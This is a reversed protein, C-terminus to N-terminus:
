SRVAHSRKELSVVRNELEQVYCRQCNGFIIDSAWPVTALVTESDAHECRAEPNYTRFLTIGDIPTRARITDIVSRICDGCLWFEQSEPPREPRRCRSYRPRWRIGDAEKVYPIIKPFALCDELLDFMRWRTQESLLAIRERVDFQRCDLEAKISQVADIAEVVRQGDPLEYDRVGVDRL